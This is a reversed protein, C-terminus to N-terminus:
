SWCPWRLLPWCWRRGDRNDCHLFTWPLVVVNFMKTLVGIFSAAGSAAARHGLLLLLPLVFLFITIAEDQV